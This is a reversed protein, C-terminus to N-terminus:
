VHPLKKKAMVHDLWMLNLRDQLKNQQRRQEMHDLDIIDLPQNQWSCAYVAKTRQGTQPDVQWQLCQACVGKLMCQMPGMVSAVFQTQQAFVGRMRFKQLTKVLCASGAVYVQDLQDLPAKVDEQVYRQIAASLDCIWNPHAQAAIPLFLDNPNIYYISECLKSLENIYILDSPKEICAFYTIRVNKQLMADGFAFLQLLAKIGGVFLVSSDALIKSRSGTPGM